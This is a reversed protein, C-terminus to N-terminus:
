LSSAAHCWQADAQDARAEHALMVKGRPLPEGPAGADHRDGIRRRLVRAPPDVCEANRAGVRRGHRHQFGFREIRDVHGRRTLRVGRHNPEGGGLADGHQALLRERRRIFFRGRQDGLDADRAQHDVLVPAKARVVPLDALPQPGAPDAGDQLGTHAQEARSKQRGRRTLPRRQHALREDAGELAGEDVLHQDMVDVRQTKQEAIEREHGRVEAARGARHAALVAGRDRQLRLDPCRDLQDGVQANVILRRRQDVTQDQDALGSRDAEVARPERAAARLRGREIEIEIGAVRIRIGLRDRM